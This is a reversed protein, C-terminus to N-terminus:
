TKPLVAFALALFKCRTRQECFQQRGKTPVLISAPSVSKQHGVGAGTLGPLLDPGIEVEVVVLSQMLGQPVPSWGFHEM